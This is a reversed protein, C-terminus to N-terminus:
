CTAAHWAQAFVSEGDSPMPWLLFLASFPFSCSMGAKLVPPTRHRIPIALAIPQDWIRARSARLAGRPM